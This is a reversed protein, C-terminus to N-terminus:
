VLDWQMATGKKASRKIPRGLLIPLYKVPLGLGPRVSRLNKETLIEGEAMDEAIYLSRRHKRSAIEQETCGYHVTGMADHARKAEEVLQKFEHPEMSFEADVGGESRDLVFHKEIVTAGVAVAAVAVGLGATHDSLGVECGFLERLHPITNLNADVPRAPYHSTCKLLIYDECGNSELVEVAEAIETQSAMGTSVIVPKGTRAVAAILEHDTNEFSAIKYCPTDLSELYDVATLDFPSSFALIGLQKAREFIPKHWEWPTMAKQYLQYLSYGHWLNEKNDIYFENEHVDLTITDATYTQLKIADVGAAAAADVMTLAKELSQDHNGSLEAIIFPKESSGIKRQGIKM